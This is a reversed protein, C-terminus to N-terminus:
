LVTRQAVHTDSFKIVVADPYFIADSLLVILPKQAEKKGVKYEAAVAPDESHDNQPVVEIVVLNPVSREPLSKLM